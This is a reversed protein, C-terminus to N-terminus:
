MSPATRGAAHLHNSIRIYDQVTLTEGRRTADIELAAFDQDSMLGKLTNRLTKRRQGFAAKVVASMLQPNLATLESVPRPVLRVIASMVKPAPKFAGPPVDFLKQCDFRYQLMVSLRGYDDDDADAVIRQVVEKQLMFTMDRVVQAHEALHFLLPSSINYPLNGVVRLTGQTAVPEDANNALTSFDFQLADVEHVSMRDPAFRQRLGAALDRDIEVVHLHKLKALLPETLAALGPGIEVMCDDAQPAIASVINRIINQDVLFNQGFRKRAQHTALTPSAVSSGRGASKHDNM